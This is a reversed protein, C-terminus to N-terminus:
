PFLEETRKTKALTSFRAETKSQKKQEDTGVQERKKETEDTGGQASRLKANTLKTHRLTASRLM